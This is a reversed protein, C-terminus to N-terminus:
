VGGFDSVFVWILTGLLSVVILLASLFDTWAVSKLGGSLSLFTILVTAVITAQTASLPTILTLIYGAGTFQYATIGIFAVLVIIMCAVRVRRGFYSEFLVRVTRFGHERVNPALCYLVIIGCFTGGFFRLGALPGNSVILNA